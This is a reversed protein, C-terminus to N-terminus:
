FTSDPPAVFVSVPEGLLLMESLDDIVDQPLAPDLSAGFLNGDVVDIVEPRGLDELRRGVEGRLEDFRAREAETRVDVKAVEVYGDRSRWEDIYIGSVLHIEADYTGPALVRQPTVPVRWTDHVGVHLGRRELENVLGYGQAGIFVSDQWFVLYTGDAGVASGVGGEVAAVTDPMVARLGDSLHQEPVEHTAVAGLSLLTAALSVGWGAIELMSRDVRRRDRLVLLATWIISLVVLLTTMWAWLTLYFWIKGFIRTMSVFAAVLATALVINLADLLRHRRRHAVAAAAVWALLVVLGGIPSAPGGYPAGSRVIFGDAHAIAAVSAGFVDLHRLFVRVAAGLSIVPESPEGTFHRFLMTINGPDRRLQDAIPPLWLVVTVGVAWLTSRAIAARIVGEAARWRRVLVVLVLVSVFVCSVLYPVHTQTAVTACLAVVVALRHHGAVVAWAAVLLLLWLALPFYPNWPHTLVNLGFGRIAVTAVAALAIAGLTGALRRGILVVGAFAASNIAVSGLQMGWATAGALRYFPAVLYFSWPGPHSGQDPFDGIRGPLGIRPTFRGGVDRVRLETMALDLVPAWPRWLLAIVAVVLPAVVLVAAIPVARRRVLAIM